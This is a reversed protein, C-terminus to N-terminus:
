GSIGSCALPLQRNVFGYCATTLLWCACVNCICCCLVVAMFCLCVLSRRLCSCHEGPLPFWALLHLEAPVRPRGLSHWDAGASAASVPACLPIKFFCLHRGLLLVAPLLWGGEGGVGYHPEAPLQLLWPPLLTRGPVARCHGFVWPQHEASVQSLLFHEAPSSGASLSVGQLSYACIIGARSSRVVRM